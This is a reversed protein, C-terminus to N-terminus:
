RVPLAQIKKIFRKMSLSWVNTIHDWKVEAPLKAYLPYNRVFKILKIRDDVELEQFSEEVTEWMIERHSTYVRGEWVIGLRELEKAYDPILDEIPVSVKRPTLMDDIRVREVGGRVAIEDNHDHAHGAMSFVIIAFLFLRM